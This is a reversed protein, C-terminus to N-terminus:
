KSKRILRIGARPHKLFDKPHKLLKRGQEKALDKTFDDIVKRIDKQSWEATAIMPNGTTQTAISLEEFTPNGKLLNDRICIEYLETGYLPTAVMLHPHLDYDRYLKLALSTTDKMESITEGPFGIVYFANAPIKLEKCHKVIELICPLKTKKKIVEDLVRQNGSEIALTIQVCGSQKMKQLIGYNLSDIRVGNPTDWQIQLNEGIIYDLITEFRKKDFSVNDDEFHFQTIGYKDKCLRLLKMVYEPSHARYKQGMHLRISCFVCSYPCGRSSIISISKRYIKSRNKYLAENQLYLNMDVLDFAPFPLADLNINFPRQEYNNTGNQKFALGKVNKLAQPSCFNLIFERFTEEGEGVICFDCYSNELIDRFRVSPDPGGFVTAIKPNVEKAILAVREANRYQSTFPVSIGVIDPKKETIAKKIEESSAGYTVSNGERTEVESTLCDFIEVHCIDSVVAGLYMLGIPFYITRGISADYFTQPPNILLVKTMTAFETKSSQILPTAM